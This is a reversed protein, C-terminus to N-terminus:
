FPSDSQYDNYGWGGSGGDEREEIRTQIETKKYDSIKFGCRCKWLSLHDFEVLDDSCIPCQDASLLEWRKPLGSNQQDGSRDENSEKFAM